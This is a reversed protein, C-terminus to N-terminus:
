ARRHRRPRFALRQDCIYTFTIGYRRSKILCHGGFGLVHAWRRLRRWERPTGLGSTPLRGDIAAVVRIDLQEGWGIRWGDANDRHHGATPAPPSPPPTPPTNVADALGVPCACPATSAGAVRAQETFISSMIMPLGLRAASTVLDAYNSPAL